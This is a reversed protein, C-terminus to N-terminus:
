PSFNQEISQLLRSTYREDPQRISPFAGRLSRASPGLEDIVTLAALVVWPDEHKLAAELIPLARQTDSGKALWDASAIRVSPSPDTLLGALDDLKGGFGLRQASWYRVAEDPDAPNPSAEGLAVALIRELRKPEDQFVAFRTGLRAEAAVLMPEPLLHVDRTRLTWDRYEKRLRDAVPKLDPDDIRNRVQWPDDESDYLEEPPKPGDHFWRANEPLEGSQALARLERMSAEQEAYAIPQTYPKWPDLNRIYLYRHDRVSRILDYREDMRDRAAHVYARPEGLSPGLFPRGQMHAPVTVGALNLVTPGLDLGSVLRDDTTGPKGQGGRRLAEPIAVVLPIQTGSDYLWRKARPLGDGHDSWFFVITNDLLGDDALEKLRDGVALDMVTTLEHYDAQDRRIAPTDPYIPPVDLRDPDQRDSPRLRQVLKEHQEADAFVQSEHTGVWNFVALFPQNPDPRNRWHAKNSVEHWGAQFDALNYDTKVNNVCYYGAERLYAPFGRVFDPVRAKSRMHNAGLTPPMMGTIIGTRSPACIGANAFARTYRVGRGALADVHPTIAGKGGYCGIHHPSLDECSLWLINPRPGEPGPGATATTPIALLGCLLVAWRPPLTRSHM